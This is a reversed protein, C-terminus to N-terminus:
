RASYTTNNTVTCGPADAGCVVVPPQSFPNIDYTFSFAVSAENDHSNLIIPM